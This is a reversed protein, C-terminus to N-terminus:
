RVVYYAESRLRTAGQMQANKPLRRGVMGQSPQGSFGCNTLLRKFGQPILANTMTSPSTLM